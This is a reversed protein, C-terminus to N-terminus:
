LPTDYSQNMRLLMTQHQSIDAELKTMEDILTHKRLEAAASCSEAASKRKEFEAILKLYITAKGVRIPTARYHELERRAFDEILTSYVDNQDESLTQLDELLDTRTHM